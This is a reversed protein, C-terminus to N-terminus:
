ANRYRKQMSKGVLGLIAVEEHPRGSAKLWAVSVLGFAIMSAPAHNANCSCGRCVEVVVQLSLPFFPQGQPQHSAASQDQYGREWFEKVVSMWRGLQWRSFKRAEM